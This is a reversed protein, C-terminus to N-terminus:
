LVTMTDDTDLTDLRDGWTRDGSVSRFLVENFEPNLTKKKIQTKCKAKKGMDPKLYSFFLMFIWLCLACLMNFLGLTVFCDLHNRKVSVSRTSNIISADKCLPGFLWELGDSGSSCMSSCGCDSSGTPQQLHSFDPYTREGRGRWWGEVLFAVHFLLLGM